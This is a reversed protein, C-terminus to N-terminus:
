TMNNHFLLVRLKETSPVLECIAPVAEESIGDNMLYLEELSTQSQLIKGFARVGKEGLANDSMNLCMLHSGELADKCYGYMVCNYTYLDLLAGNLKMKEYLEFKDKKLGNKFIGNILVTYTYQNAVLGLEEMKYFLEKAKEFEGDKCCEDISTTYVVVNPSYGISSMQDLVRLLAAGARRDTVQCPCCHRSLCHNAEGRNERMKERCCCRGDRRGGGRRAVLLLVERRKEM